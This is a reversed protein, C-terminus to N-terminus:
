EASVSKRSVANLSPLVNTAAKTCKHSIEKTRLEAENRATGATMFCYTCISDVTDNSNWRYNFQDFREPM